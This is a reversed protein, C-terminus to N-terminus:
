IDRASAWWRKPASIAEVFTILTRGNIWTGCFWGQCYIKGAM